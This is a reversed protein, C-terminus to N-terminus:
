VKLKKLKIKRRSCFKRLSSTMLKPPVYYIGDALLCHNLVNEQNLTSSRKPYEHKLGTPRGIYMDAKYYRFINKILDEEGEAIYGIRDQVETLSLGQLQDKYVRYLYAATFERPTYNYREKINYKACLQKYLDILDRSRQNCWENYCSRYIRTKNEHLFPIPNIFQLKIMICVKTYIELETFVTKYLKNYMCANFTVISILMNVTRERSGEEIRITDRNWKGDRYIFKYYQWELRPDTYSQKGLFRNKEQQNIPLFLEHKTKTSRYTPLDAVFVKSDLKYKPDDLMIGYNLQYASKTCKDVDLDCYIEFQTLYSEMDNVAIPSFLELYVKCKNAKRSSSDFVHCSKVDLANAIADCSTNLWERKGDPLNDIDVIIFDMLENDGIDM